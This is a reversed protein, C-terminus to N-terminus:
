PEASTSEDGPQTEGARSASDESLRTARLDEATRAASKALAASVRALADEIVEARAANRANRPRAVGRGGKKAVKASAERRYISVYKNRAKRVRRHLDVLGDEDLGAMRDPETERLLARADKGLSGLLPDM